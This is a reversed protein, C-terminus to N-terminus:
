YLDFTFLAEEEPCRSVTIIVRVGTSASANAHFLFSYLWYETECSYHIGQSVALPGKQEVLTQM